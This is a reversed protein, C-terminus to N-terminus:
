ETFTFSVRVKSDSIKEGDAKLEYQLHVSIKKPTEEIMLHRTIATLKMIGYQTQYDTECTEGLGFHLESNVSGTQSMTIKGNGIILTHHNRIHLKDDDAPDYYQILTSNGDTICSATCETKVIEPKGDGHDHAGIIKIIGNMPM